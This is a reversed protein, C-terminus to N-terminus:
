AMNEVGAAQQEINFPHFAQCSSSNSNNNENSSNSGGNNNNGSRSSRQKDQESFEKSSIGESSPQSKTALPTFSVTTDSATAAAAAAEAATAAESSRKNLHRDLLSIIATGAAGALPAVLFAFLYPLTSIDEPVFFSFSFPTHAAKAAALGCLLLGVAATLLGGLFGWSTTKPHVSLLFPGSLIACLFNACMFLKMLPVQYIALAVALVNLLLMMLRAWNFSNKHRELERGIVSVAAVQYTDVSSVVCAVALVCLVAVWPQPLHAAAFAFLSRGQQAESPSLCARGAAAFLLVSAGALGAALLLGLQM